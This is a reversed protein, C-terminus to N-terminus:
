KKQLDDYDFMAKIVRNDELSSPHQTIYSGTETALIWGNDTVFANVKGNETLIKKQSISTAAVSNLFEKDSQSYNYFDMPNTEPLQNCVLQTASLVIAMTAGIAIVPNAFLNKINKKMM